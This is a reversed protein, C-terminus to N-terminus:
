KVWAGSRVRWVVAALRTCMFALLGSWIGALGWDFAWSLWILPLFAGLAGALTATRLFAADGSGLLVGDLAFVAGAIPLMAVFFWWPTRMADLIAADDTFIRPIVAVGAALVAALLVSIGVSVATARTAARRAVRFAGAGLAAGM